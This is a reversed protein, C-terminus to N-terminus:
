KPERNFPGLHHYGDMWRSRRIVWIVKILKILRIVAMEAVDPGVAGLM